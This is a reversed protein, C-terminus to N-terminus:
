SIIIKKVKVIRVKFPIREVTYHQCNFHFLLLNITCPLILKNGHNDESSMQMSNSHTLRVVSKHLM